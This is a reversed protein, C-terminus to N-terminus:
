EVQHADEKKAQVQPVVNDGAKMPLYNVDDAQEVRACTEYESMQGRADVHFFM